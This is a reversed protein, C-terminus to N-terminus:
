WYDYHVKKSTFRNAVIKEEDPYGIAVIGIPIIHDPLKLYKRLEKVYKSIPYVGCWVASLNIGHAALLINQISASGDEILFGKQKQVECDGTVMIACGANKIMKGRPLISSVENLTDRNKILIFDTPRKNEATPAYSGAKLLLEIQENEIERSTFQRVSRRTFIAELVSLEEEKQIKEKVSDYLDLVYPDSELEPASPSQTDLTVSCTEGPSLGMRNILDKNFTIIYKGNGRSLLSKKVSISNITIQLEVKGKIGFENAPNFPIDMFTLRDQKELIGIFSKKM